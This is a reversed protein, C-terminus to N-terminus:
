WRLARPKKQAEQIADYDDIAYRLKENYEHHDRRYLQAVRKHGLKNTAEHFTEVFYKPAPGCWKQAFLVDGKGDVVEYHLTARGDDHNEIRVILKM